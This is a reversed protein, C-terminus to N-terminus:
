ILEMRAALVAAQTRDNVGLKNFIHVVHSKVTHPSLSLVAAIQVNSLGTAILRLVQSERPTLPTAPCLDQREYEDPKSPESLQALATELDDLYADRTRTGRKSSTIDRGIKLVYRMGSRRDSVPYGRVEYCKPTGGETEFWRENVVPKGSSFADRVPCDVCPVNKGMLREHCIAGTLRNDPTDCNSWVIRYTEDIISFPDASSGSMAELAITSIAPLDPIETKAAMNRM